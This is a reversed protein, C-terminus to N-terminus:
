RDSDIHRPSNQLPLDLLEITVCVDIISTPVQFASLIQRVVKEPHDHEQDQRLLTTMSALVTGVMMDRGITVSELKFEGADVGEQVSTTAYHFTESGFIPGVSSLNVMAWGWSQDQRARHLYYRIALAVRTACLPFTRMLEQVAVNFEHSVEYTLAEFLEDVDSFYNYFTGRSILAVECVEEIRTSRGNPRGLLHFAASLITARTRARKEQGIQVRREPSIKPVM